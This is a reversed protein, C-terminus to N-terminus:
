IGGDFRFTFRYDTPAIMGGAVPVPSVEVLELTGDAVQTPEGLTLDRTEDAAGLHITARLRLRGAWVCQVGAPCRSDELVELPTVAPGDVQVREGLRGSSLQGVLEFGFRYAGEPIERNAEREPISSTLAIVNGHTLHSTGLTLPVTERWSPGSVRAEVVLQGQQMCRANAPCRSDEVVQMPTVVLEGLSVSRGLPVLSGLAAEGEAMRLPTTSCGVLLLTLPFLAFLPKM